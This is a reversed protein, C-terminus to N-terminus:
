MGVTKLCRRIVRGAQRETIINDSKSFESNLSQLILSLINEIKENASNGGAAYTSYYNASSNNNIYTQQYVSQMANSAAVSAAYRSALKPIQVDPNFGSDIQMNDMIGSAIDATKEYIDQEKNELGAIIGLDFMEAIWKGKRSPSKIELSATMKNFMRSGISAVKKYIIGENSALGKEIGRNFDSGVSKGKSEIEYKGIQAIIGDMTEAWAKSSSKPMTQYASIISDVIAKNEDDLKGGESLMKDVTELYTSLLERNENLFEANFKENAKKRNITYNLYAGLTAGLNGETNQLMLENYNQEISAMEQNHEAFKEALVDYLGSQKLSSTLLMNYSKSTTENVQELSEDKWTNLNAEAEERAKGSLNSIELASANFIEIVADTAEQATEEITKSYSAIEESSMNTNTEIYTQVAKQNKQFLELEKDNVDELQGFLDELRKVEEDTLSRRSDSATQAIKSIEGQIEKYQEKLEAQKDNFNLSEKIGDVFSTANSVKDRFDEIGDGLATMTERMDKSGYTLSKYAAYLGAVVATAAVIGLILAGSSAFSKAVGAAGSSVGDQAASADGMAQSLRKFGLVAEGTKLEGIKKVLKGGVTILTGVSSTTKGLILLLPGAAAVIAVIRLATEKQEDSLDSFTDALKEIKDIGKEAFPMLQEGFQIFVKNLTNKCIQIKSELTEYRKRAEEQLASGEEWANNATDVAKSLIGNSSALALIANSLRVEKIGMDDLVAVASKGNRETDNLGDTFAGLAAVADKKWLKKFDSVTMNSVDAFQKLKESDTEVAVQIQKLLKSMASGGADAEIGLSNLATAIAMIQSQSLGTLTGTSALRTSMSVIDAETTAFNNGLDVVVSGLREYDSSSMNTINAFKALATAADEASLNTAEGLNIMVETFDLLVDKQIGLQGAVEAVGAIDEATAPIATSLDIIADYLQEYEEETADVTKTVGTFASEYDIAADIATYMATTAGASLVSVKKGVGTIKDGVDNLKKGYAEAKEGAAKLKNEQDRLEKNVSELEKELKNLQAAANNYKAKLEESKESAEGSAKIEDQLAKEYGEVIQKQIEFKKSLTNASDRLKDQAKTNEDYTTALARAESNLTKQQKYLKNMSQYYAQEGDIVLTTKINGRAVGM